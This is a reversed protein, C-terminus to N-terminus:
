IHFRFRFWFKEFTPIPVPVMVKWFDSGSGYYITVTGCCQNQTRRSANTHSVSESGEIMLCFYSSFGWNRRNQSNTAAFLLLLFNLQWRSSWQSFYCSRYLWKQTKNQKDFLLFYAFFWRKYKKKGILVNYLSFHFKKVVGPVMMTLEHYTTTKALRQQFYIYM